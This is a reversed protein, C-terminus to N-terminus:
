LPWLKIGLLLFLVALLGCLATTVLYFLRNEVQRYNSAGIYTGVATLFFACENFVLLTLLPIITEGGADVESGKLVFLMLLVGIGFAIYPFNIKKMQM